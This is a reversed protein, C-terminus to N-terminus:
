KLIELNKKNREPKEFALVIKPCQFPELRGIGQKFGSYTRRGPSTMVSGGTMSSKLISDQLTDRDKARQQHRSARQEM